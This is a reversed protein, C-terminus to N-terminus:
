PSKSSREKGRARARNFELFGLYDPTMARAEIYVGRFQGHGVGEAVWNGDRHPELNHYAERIPAAFQYERYWGTGVAALAMLLFLERLSLRFANPIKM